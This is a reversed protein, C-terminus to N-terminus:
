ADSLAAQEELEDVMAEPLFMLDGDADLKSSFHDRNAVLGDFQLDPIGYM